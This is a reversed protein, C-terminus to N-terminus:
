GEQPRGTAKLVHDLIGNVFASSEETGFRKALEVCEDITVKPPVDAFNELEFAGIRLVNRDVKTMRYLKWHESHKTLEGDLNELKAFIGRLLRYLFPLDVTEELNRPGFSELYAKIAPDVDAPATQGQNDMGFLIQLALERARHRRM